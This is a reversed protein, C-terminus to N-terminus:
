SPKKTIYVSGIASMSVRIRLALRANCGSTEIGAELIFSPM